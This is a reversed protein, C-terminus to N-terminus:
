LAEVGNGVAVKGGSIIAARIGAKHEMHQMVEQGILDSLYGCPECLRVAKLKIEGLSFEEGVLPNLRIGETIVNRRFLGNSYDLGTIKNFADIEEREILTVEYDKSDQLAESFTGVSNFYRDGDIGKGPVFLAEKVPFLSEGAKGAILIEKVIGSM